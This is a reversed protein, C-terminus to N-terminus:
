DAPLSRNGRRSDRAIAKQTEHRIRGSWENSQVPRGSAVRKATIRLWDSLSREDADAASEFLRREEATVHVLLRETRNSM